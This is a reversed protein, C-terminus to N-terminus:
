TENIEPTALFGVVVSTQDNKGFRLEPIVECLMEAYTRLPLDRVVEDIVGIRLAGFREEPIRCQSNLPVESADYNRCLSTAPAM